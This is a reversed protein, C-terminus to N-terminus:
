LRSTNCWYSTALPLITGPALGYLDIRHRLQMVTRHHHAHFSAHLM